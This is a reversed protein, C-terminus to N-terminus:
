LIVPQGQPYDGEWSCVWRGDRYLDLLKTFFGNVQLVFEVGAWCVDRKVSHIVDPFAADDFTREQKKENAHIQNYHRDLYSCIGSYIADHMTDSITIFIRDIEHAGVRRVAEKELALSQQGWIELMEKGERDWGIELSDVVRLEDCAEGAHSFWSLGMLRQQFSELREQITSKTM